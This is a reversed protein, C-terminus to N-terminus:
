LGSKRANADIARDLLNAAVREERKFAARASSSSLVDSAYPVRNHLQYNVSRSGRSEIVSGSVKSVGKKGKAWAPIGRTGGLLRACAAWGAKALGVRKQIKQLYKDRKADDPVVTQQSNKKPVRGKSNRASSHRQKQLSRTLDIGEEMAIKRAKAYQNNQLFLWFASALDESRRAIADFAKSPSLFVNRVDIATKRKGRGHARSSFGHPQTQYALNVSVRRASQKTVQPITKGNAASLRRLKSKLVRDDVTATLKM